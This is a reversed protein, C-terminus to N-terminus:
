AFRRCLKMLKVSSKMAAVSFEMGRAADIERCARARLGRVSCWLFGMFSQRGTKLMYRTVIYRVHTLTDNKVSKVNSSLNCFPQM